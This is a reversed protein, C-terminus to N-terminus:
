KKVSRYIAKLLDNIDKYYDLKAGKENAMDVFDIIDTKLPLEKIDDGNYIIKNEEVVIYRECKEVVSNIDDTSFIITKNIMSKNDKIFKIINKVDKDILATDIHNLFIVKSSGILLKIILIKALESTSLNKMKRYKLAENLDLEEFGKKIFARNKKNLILGFFLLVRTKENYKIKRVDYFNNYIFNSDTEVLGCIENIGYIDNDIAFNSYEIEM